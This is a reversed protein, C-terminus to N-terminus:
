TEGSTPGQSPGQPTPRRGKPTEMREILVDIRRELGDLRQHLADLDGATPLRMLKITQETVRDLQAKMLFSSELAKAVQGLFTENRSLKEAQGGFWQEWEKYVKGAPGQSMTSLGELWQAWATKLGDGDPSTRTSM